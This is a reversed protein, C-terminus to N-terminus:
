YGGGGSRTAKVPKNEKRAIAKSIASGKRAVGVAKAPKPYDARERAPMSARVSAKAKAQSGGMGVSASAKGQARAPKPTPTPTKGEERTKTTFKKGGFSFEKKGAKRAAKFAAGFKSLAM